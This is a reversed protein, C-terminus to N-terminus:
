KYKLLLGFTGEGCNVAIAPSAKHFYIHKFNMKKAAYGKIKDLERKSLGVYTVFLLDDDIENKNALVHDIYRKWSRERAGIYVAGVKLSGRRM